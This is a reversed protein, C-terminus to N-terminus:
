PDDGEGTGTAHSDSDDPRSKKDTPRHCDGCAVGLPKYRVVTARRGNDVPRHCAACDLKAHQADTVEQARLLTTALLAVLLASRRM